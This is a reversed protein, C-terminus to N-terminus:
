DQHHMGILEGGLRRISPCALRYYVPLRFLVFLKVTIGCYQCLEIVSLTWFELFDMVSYVQLAPDASTKVFLEIQWCLACPGTSLLAGVNFLYDWVFGYQLGGRYDGL